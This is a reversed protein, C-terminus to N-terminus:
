SLDTYIEAYQKAISEPRYKLANNLGDQITRERLDSDSIIKKFGNRISEVDYPNVFVAGKGSVSVMPELKSTLIVRGVTQGEIIPMGFGEYTSPFSVIDCNEYECIIDADSLDFLNVYDIECKQLLFLQEQTLRGIIRLKCRIGQLSQIVRLLNKNERTGLHLIVPCEEDFPHFVYKFGLGVPNHIVKIKNADCGFLKVLDAKTKESICTVVDARKVPLYYWLYKFIVRKLKSKTELLVLDHVTLVTRAQFMFLIVYHIDGTVHNIGKHNVNCFIYFINRVMNQLSLRFFPLYRFDHLNLADAITYFVKEISYEYGQARFFLTVEKM